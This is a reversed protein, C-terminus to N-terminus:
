SQGSINLDRVLLSPCVIGGVPALADSGVDEVGALVNLINGSILFDKLPQTPKGNEYMLGEVPISFDGSTARFGAFGLASTILIVNRDAMLLEEVTKTGPRVLVNSTSVGLDTAPTRAASATHPLNMKRALVSNTLFSRVVGDEVLVTKKSAFGEDDFPRCNLASTFFPDDMLNLKTSFMKEGLRGKLPSIGEDVAKASFYDAIHGILSEAVRNEFVVTYRGTAPRVAGRRALTKRAATEAVTKANLKEFQRAAQLEGAIVAADGDKVLCRTYAYCGSRKYSSRLGKTNAIWVTSTSDGYRSNSVSSIAPDFELAAKELTAAAALKKEMDAEHVSASYLGPIEKVAVAGHLESVIEKEIMRANERAEALMQDLSAPELSESFAIGEHRAELVRVGVQHTNSFSFQDLKGEQFSIATSDSQTALIEVELRQSSAAKLLHDLATELPTSM